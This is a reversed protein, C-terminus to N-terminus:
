KETKKLCDKCIGKFIVFHELVKNGDIIQNDRFDFAEDIDYIKGCKICQFHSHPTMNYEYRTEKEFISLSKILGKEEFTRLTNYVTTKSLTPIEDALFNYIEEVTPHTYNTALYELIKIRHISPSIDNKRLKEKLNEM